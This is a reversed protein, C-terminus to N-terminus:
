SDVRYYMDRARFMIGSDGAIVERPSGLVGWYLMNGGSASDYLGCAVITGWDELPAPFEANNLLYTTGSFGTSIDTGTPDDTSSWGTLSRDTEARSYSPAVPELGPITDTPITTFLAIYLKPGMVLPQNRFIFDIIMNEMKDSMAPM